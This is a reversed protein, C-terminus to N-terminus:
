KSVKTGPSYVGEGNIAFGPATLQKAMIGHAEDQPCAPAADGVKQLKTMEVNCTACAYQYLPM